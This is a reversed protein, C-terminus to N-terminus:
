LWYGDTVILYRFHKIFSFLYTVLQSKFLMIYCTSCHLDPPNLSVKLLKQLNNSSQLFNAIVSGLVYYISLLPYRDINNENAKKKRGKAYIRDVQSQEITEHWLKKLLVETESAEVLGGLSPGHGLFKRHSTVGSSLPVLVPSMGLFSPLPTLLFCKICNPRLSGASTLSGSKAFSLSLLLAVFFSQFSSCSSPWHSQHTRLSSCFFFFHFFPFCILFTVTTKLSCWSSRGVFPYNSILM